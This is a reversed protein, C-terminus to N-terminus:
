NLKVRRPRDHIMLWVMTGTTQGKARAEKESSYVLGLGQAVIGGYEDLESNLKKVDAEMEPINFGLQAASGATSSEMMKALTLDRTISEIRSNLSTILSKALGARHEPIKGKSDIAAQKRLKMMETQTHANEANIKVRYMAMAKDVAAAPLDKFSTPDFKGAELQKYVKAADPGMKGRLAEVEADIKDAQGELIRNKLSEAEAVFPAAAKMAETELRKQEIIDKQTRVGTEATTKALAQQHPNMAAQHQQAQLNGLMLSGSQISAASALPNAATAQGLIGGLNLPTRAFEGAKAEAEGRLKAMAEENRRIIERYHEPDTESLSKISEIQPLLSKLALSDGTEEAGQRKDELTKLKDEFISTGFDGKKQFDLITQGRENEAKLDQWVQNLEINGIQAVKAARADQADKVGAAIGKILSQSDRTVEGAHQGAMEQLEFLSANDLEDKDKGYGKLLGRLKSAEGFAKGKAAGVQQFAKGWAEGAQQFGQGIGRSMDPMYSLGYAM